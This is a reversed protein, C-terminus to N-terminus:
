AVSDYDFEFERKKKKFGSYKKTKSLQNFIAQKAKELGSKFSKDKKKAILFKQPPLHVQISTEYENKENQYIKIDVDKANPLKRFIQEKINFFANAYYIKKKRM